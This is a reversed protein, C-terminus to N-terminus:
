WKYKNIVTFLFFSQYGKMISNQNAFLITIQNCSICDFTIVDFISYDDIMLVQATEFELILGIGTNQAYPVSAQAHIGECRAVHEAEVVDLIISCFSIM